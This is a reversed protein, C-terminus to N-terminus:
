NKYFELSAFSEEFALRRATPVSRQHRAATLMSAGGTGPAAAGAGLSAPTTQLQGGWDCAATLLPSLMSDPLRERVFPIFRTQVWKVLSASFVAAVATKRQKGSLSGALAASQLANSVYQLVELVLKTRFQM